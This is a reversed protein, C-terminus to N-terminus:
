NSKHRFVRFYLKQYIIYIGVFIAVKVLPCFLYHISL